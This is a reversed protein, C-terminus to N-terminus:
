TPSEIPTLLSFLNSTKKHVGIPTFKPRILIL